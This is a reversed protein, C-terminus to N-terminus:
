SGITVRRRALVGFFVLGFAGLGTMVLSGAAFWGLATQDTLAALLLDLGWGTPLRSQLTTLLPPVTSALGAALAVLAIALAILRGAGGFAAALGQNALTFVAGLFVAGVTFALWQMPTVATSGLVVLAVVFGQAAGLAAPTAVARLAIAGSRAGTLLMRTPVAQVGLAIVLGGLWLALMTFLPVSQVGAGGPAGALDVPRAVVSSLTAIDTDSYTPIQEAAQELGDALQAAGADVQQTGGALESAGDALTVAGDSASAAGAAIDTSAAAAADVSAALPPMAAALADDGDAVQRAGADLADVQEVVAELEALTAEARDCARRPTECLATVVAAFEAAVADLRSSATGVAAAVADAGRAVEATQGPLGATLAALETLGDALSATGSELSALGDALGATGAALEDAGAAASAAGTALQQAGEAADGIQEDITNFGTYVQGLYRSILQTNLTDVASETVATTLAPDLWASAPTTVIEVTARVADAAPGSMSTANASFDDPITVIAAYRGSALGAAAEDANTLVWDLTRQTVSGDSGELDDGPSASPSPSSSSSLAPAPSSSSATPTPSPDSGGAAPDMLAAAFERGLPITQGNVTVPVDDNVIAATVRDLNAVPMALAWALIGGILLPAVILGVVTLRGPRESGSTASFDRRVM